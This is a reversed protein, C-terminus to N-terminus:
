SPSTEAPEAVSSFDKLEAVLHAKATYPSEKALRLQGLQLHGLQPQDPATVPPRRARQKLSTSNGLWLCRPQNAVSVAFRNKASVHGAPEDGSTYDRQGTM